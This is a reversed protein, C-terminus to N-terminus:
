NGNKKGKSSNPLNLARHRLTSATSVKHQSDHHSNFDLYRDTYTPKRYVNVAIVGNRRSVLTDLFSIMGKCETEITFSINTDLRLKKFCFGCGQFVNTVWYISTEHYNSVFRIRSSGRNIEWKRRSHGSLTDTYGFQDDNMEAAKSDLTQGLGWCLIYKRFM